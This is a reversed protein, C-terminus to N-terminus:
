SDPIRNLSAKSNYLIQLVAKGFSFENCKLKVGCRKRNRKFKMWREAEKCKAFVCVTIVSAVLTSAM